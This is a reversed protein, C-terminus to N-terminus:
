RHLAALATKANGLTPCEDIRKFTFRGFRRRKFELYASNVMGGTLVVETQLPLQKGYIELVLHLPELIGTLLASLLDDMTSELTMGHFAAKRQNISHRDGALYPSFRVDTKRYRLTVFDPLYERYFINRDMDRLFERRFWELAGGGITIALILWRGPVAHTRLYVKEHPLPRNTTITIIENSGSINLISGNEVAGAGLAAHSTDNSGMVVPIGSRLGTLRAAEESLGGVVSNSPVIHPLKSRNIDLESCLEDSWNGWKLTEYLGTFSANTPDIVFKGTFLRHLYTNLHGFRFTNHYISPHHQKLWMISTLSIGGPFPLNGNISLFRKRGVRKLASRAQATSRRDLHIIAPYLVNGARDMAILSPCLVCISLVDVTRLDEGFNGIGSVFARFVAEPEMQARKGDILYAYEQRHSRLIGLDENLISLKVSSTGFDASLIRM